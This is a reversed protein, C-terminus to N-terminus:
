ADLVIRADFSPLLGLGADGGLAPDLDGGRKDDPDRGCCGAPGRNRDSSSLSNTSFLWRKRM